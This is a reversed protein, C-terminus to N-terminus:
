KVFVLGYHHNDISLEKSLTLGEEEIIKRVDEKSILWHEKPAMVSDIRWEIVVMRGEKKLVRKAERLIEEKKQSQYLINRLLVLDMSNDKLKSSGLIELNAQVTLINDIKELEARSKIAELAEKVVDIAFVRGKPVRKALPISFYGHGCGFDAAEIADHIDLQDLIKEPRFFGGKTIEM